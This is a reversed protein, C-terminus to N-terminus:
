RTRQYGSPQKKFDFDRLWNIRHLFRAFDTAQNECPKELDKGYTKVLWTLYRHIEEDNMAAAVMTSYRFKRNEYKNMTVKTESWEDVNRCDSPMPIETNEKAYVQPFFKSITLVESSPVMPTSAHAASTYGSPCPMEPSGVIKWGTSKPTDGPHSEDEDRARKAADSMSGYHGTGNVYDRLWMEFQPEESATRELIANGQHNAIARTLLGVTMTIERESLPTLGSTKSIKRPLQSM